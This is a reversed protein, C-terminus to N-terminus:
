NKNKMNRRRELEKKIKECGNAFVATKKPISDCHRQKETLESRTMSGYKGDGCSIILLSLLSCLMIKLLKM